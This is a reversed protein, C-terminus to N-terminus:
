EGRSREWQQILWRKASARREFFRGRVRRGSAWDYATAVVGYVVEGGKRGAVVDIVGIMFLAGNEPEDQWVRWREAELTYRRKSM